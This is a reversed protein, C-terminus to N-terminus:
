SPRIAFALYAIAGMEIFLAISMSWFAGNLSWAKIINLAHNHKIRGNALQISLDVAKEVKESDTGQLGALWKAYAEPLDDLLYDKPWLGAVCFVGSIVISAIVPIQALKAIRTLGEALLMTASITGLFTLILLVISAKVDFADGLELEFRDREKTREGLFDVTTV